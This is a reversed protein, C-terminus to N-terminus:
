ASGHEAQWRRVVVTADITASSFRIRRPLSLDDVDVYEEYIVTWGSQQLRALRGQGDFEISAAAEDPAPVGVIWYRLGELPVSWGLARQLLTEASAARVRRDDAFKAEVGTGLGELEFLGAGFLATFRLNYTDHMQRWRVTVRSAEGGTRVVLRAVMTWTQFRSLARSHVEWTTSERESSMLELLSGCGSLLSVGLVACVVSANRIVAAGHRRQAGRRVEFGSVSSSKSSVGTM